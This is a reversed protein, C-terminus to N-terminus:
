CATGRTRPPPPCGVAGGSVRLENQGGFFLLFAADVQLDIVVDLLVSGEVGEPWGPWRAELDAAMASVPACETWVHTEWQEEGM